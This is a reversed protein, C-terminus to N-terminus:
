RAQPTVVGANNVVVGIPGLQSRALGFMAPIDDPEGIDARICVARRGLDRCVAATREADDSRERYTLAIDWGRRALALCTAAGIGRSGGTVLAARQPDPDMGAVGGTPQTPDCDATAPATSTRRRASHRCGVGRRSWASPSGPR